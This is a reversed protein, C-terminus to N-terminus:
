HAPLGDTVLNIWDSSDARGNFYFFVINMKSFLRAIEYFGNAM